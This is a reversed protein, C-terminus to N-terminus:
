DTYGNSYVWALLVLGLAVLVAAIAMGVLSVILGRRRSDRWASAIGAAGLPIAALFVPFFLDFWPTFLLVVAAGL